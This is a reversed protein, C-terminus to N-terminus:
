QNFRRSKYQKTITVKKTTQTHTESDPIINTEIKTNDDGINKNKEASNLHRSKYLFNMRSDTNSKHLEKQSNGNNKDRYKEVSGYKARFGFIKKDKGQENENNDVNYHYTRTVTETEVKKSYYNPEETETEVVKTRTVTDDNEKKEKYKTRFSKKYKNSKDTNSLHNDNKLENNDDTNSNNENLNSSYIVDIKKNQKTSYKGEEKENEKKSDHEFIKSKIENTNSSSDKDEKNIFNFRYRTKRDNADREKINNNNSDENEETRSYKNIKNYKYNIQENNNNDEEEEIKTTEKTKKNFKRGFKYAYSNNGENNVDKIDEEDNEINNNKGTYSFNHKQDVVDKNYSRNKRYKSLFDFKKGKEEKENNNNRDESENNEDKNENIKEMYNKRNYDKTEVEEKTTTVTSSKLYKSEKYYISKDKCSSSKKKKMEEYHKRALPVDDQMVTIFKNTNVAEYLADQVSPNEYQNNGFIDNALSMYTKLLNEYLYKMNVRKKHINKAYIHWILIIFHIYRRRSFITTLRTIRILEYLKKKKMNMKSVKSVKKTVKTTMKLIKIRSKYYIKKYFYKWKRIVKKIKTWEINERCYEQIIKANAELELYRAKRRWINFYHRKITIPDARSLIFLRIIEKAREIDEERNRIITTTEQIQQHKMDKDKSERRKYNIEIEKKMKIYNKKKKKEEMEERILIEKKKGEEIIKGMKMEKEKLKEQEIEKKRQIERVREIEKIREDDQQRHMEMLKEIEKRNKKEINERNIRLEEEGRKKEMEIKKEYEEILKSKVEELNKKCDKKLIYEGNPGFSPYKGGGGEKQKIIEVNTKPKYVSTVKKQTQTNDTKNKNTEIKTYKKTTIKTTTTMQAEQKEKDRARKELREQREKEIQAIREKDIITKKIEVKKITEDKKQPKPIEKPKTQIQVQKKQIEIKKKEQKRKMQERKEQERKEQERKEQERKEQERKAQEIKKKREKEKKEQEAKKKRQEMEIKEQEEKQKKEMEKRIQEELEKRERERREKELKDRREKDKREKEKREEEEKREKEKREEEEQRERELREKEEKERRLKEEREKKTRIEKEKRERERMEKELRETEEKIIKEREIILQEEMEKKERERREKEMKDRREKEKREREKRDQEEKLRKEREKKEKEEREKREQEEKERQKEAEKERRELERKEEEIREIEETIKKEREILLLEEKERREKEKRERERDRKEQEMRDKRDRERREEEMKQLERKEIEILDKVRKEIQIGITEEEKKPEKKKKKSAINFTELKAIKHPEEATNTFIDRTSVSKMKSLIKVDETKNMEIKSFRRSKKDEEKKDEVYEKTEVTKSIETTKQQPIKVINLSIYNDSEIDDDNFRKSNIEKKTRIQRHTYIDKEKRTEYKNVIQYSNYNEERTLNRNRYDDLCHCRNINQNSSSYTTKFLGRSYYNRTGIGARNDSKNNLVNTTNNEFKYKNNKEYNNFTYNNSSSVTTKGTIERYFRNHPKDNSCPSSIYYHTVKKTPSVSYEMKKSDTAYNVSYNLDHKKCISNDHTHNSINYFNKKNNLVIKESYDRRLRRPIPLDFDKKNNYKQEIIKTKKYEEYKNINNRYDDLRNKNFYNDNNEDDNRRKDPYLSKMSGNKYKNRNRLLKNKLIQFVEERVHWCLLDQIKDCFSQYYIALTIYRLVKKRVLFGRVFSQILTANENIIEYVDNNNNYNRNNNYNHRIINNPRNNYYYNGNREYETSNEMRMKEQYRPTKGKINEIPINRFHSDNYGYNRDPSEFDDNQTYPSELNYRNHNNVNNVGVRRNSIDNKINYKYKGYNQENKRLLNIDDYDSASTYNPIIPSVVKNRYNIVKGMRKTNYASYQDRGGDSEMGSTTYIKTYNNENSEYSDPSIMDYKYNNNQYIENADDQEQNNSYNSYRIMENDHENNGQFSNNIVKPRINMISNSNFNNNEDEYDIERVIKTTIIANGNQDFNKKISRHIIKENKNNPPSMVKFDSFKNQNLIYSSQNNPSRSVNYLQKPRHKMNIDINKMGYAKSKM